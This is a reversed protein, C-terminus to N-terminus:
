GAANSFALELLRASQEAIAQIVAPPLADKWDRPIAKQGYCAGAIVGALAGITDADGGNNIAVILCDALTATTFFAHFVAQLTDVIYGSCRGPFPEFSFLPEKEVFAKVECWAQAKSAGLVLRQVVRYFAMTGRDSLPHHHSFHCQALTHDVLARDQRLTLLAVPLNRMCAGNGADQDDYDKSLSGDEIYRLIARKCTAGVDKPGDLLWRAWARAIGPLDFGGHDVIAQGLALTMETDDTVEGPSLGLWGGGLMSSVRGHQRQITAQSMFEWPAGLADGVALGLYAGVAREHIDLSYKLTTRVEWPWTNM